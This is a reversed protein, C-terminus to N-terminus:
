QHISSHCPLHKEFLHNINCNMLNEIFLLQVPLCLSLSMLLRLSLPSSHSAVYHINNNIIICNNCMFNLEGHQVRLLYMRTCFSGICEFYTHFALFWAKPGVISKFYKIKAFRTVYNRYYKSDQEYNLRSDSVICM